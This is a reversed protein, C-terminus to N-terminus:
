TGYQNSKKLYLKSFGGKSELNQCIIYKVNEYLIYKINEKKLNHYSPISFSLHCDIIEAYDGKLVVKDKKDKIGDIEKETGDTFTIKLNEKFVDTIEKAAYNILDSWNLLTM